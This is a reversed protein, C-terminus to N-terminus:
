LPLFRSQFHGSFNKDPKALGMLEGRGPGKKNVRIILREQGRARTGTSKPISNIETKRQPRLNGSM